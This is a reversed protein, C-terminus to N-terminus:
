RTADKNTTHPLLTECNKSSEIFLVIRRDAKANFRGRTITFTLDWRLLGSNNVVILHRGCKTRQRTQDSVGWANRMSLQHGARM